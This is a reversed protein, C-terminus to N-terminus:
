RHPVAAGGDPQHVAAAGGSLMMERCKTYAAIAKAFDHRGMEARGLSYYALAFKQDNDIAQQFERAADDWSEARIATWGQAYHKNAAQASASPSKPIQAAASGPMVIAVVCLSSSVCPDRGSVFFGAPRLGRPTM